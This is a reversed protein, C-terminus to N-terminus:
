NMWTKRMRWREYRRVEDPIDITKVKRIRIRKSDAVFEMFFDSLTKRLLLQELIDKKESLIEKMIDPLDGLTVGANKMAGSFAETKPFPFLVDPKILVELLRKVAERTGMNVLTRITHFHFSIDRSKPEFDALHPIAREEKLNGLIVAAETAIENTEGLATILVRRSAEDGIGGLAVIIGARYRVEAHRNTSEFEKILHPTAESDGINGLATVVADLVVSDEKRCSGMGNRSILLSPDKGEVKRGLFDTLDLEFSKGERDRWQGHTYGLRRILPEVARKDKLRGLRRAARARVNKKEHTLLGIARNVRYNHIKERVASLRLRM